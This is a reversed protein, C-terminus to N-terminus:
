LCASVYALTLTLTLCLHISLGRALSVCDSFLVRLCLAKNVEQQLIPRWAAVMNACAEADFRWKTCSPRLQQALDIGARLAVSRHLLATLCHIPHHLTRISHLSETCPLSATICHLPPLSATCHHLATTCHLSEIYHLLAILCHLSPLSATCHHLSLTCHYLETICHHLPVCQM